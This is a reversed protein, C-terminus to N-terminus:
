RRGITKHAKWCKVRSREADDFDSCRSTLPCGNQVIDRNTSRRKVHCKVSLLSAAPACSASTDVQPVTPRRAAIWAPSLLSLGLGGAVGVEQAFFAWGTSQPTDHLDRYPRVVPVDLNNELVQQPPSAVNVAALSLLLDGSVSSRMTWIFKPQPPECGASNPSRNSQLTPGVVCPSQQQLTLTTFNTPRVAAETM